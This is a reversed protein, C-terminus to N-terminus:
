PHLPAVARRGRLAAARRYPTRDDGVSAILTDLLVQGFLWDGLGSAANIHGIPGADVFASGWDRAFGCTRDLTAYSDNSSAVVTSRFPLPAVPMPAFRGIVAPAGPCETDCPAVLLAGGVREVAGGGAVWHGVLACGLSHAVLVVPAPAARVAADLTACWQDLDPQDWSAQEVRRCEPRIHQWRTQWHDPGSGNLGPLIRVSAVAV